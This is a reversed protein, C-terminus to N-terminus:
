KQPASRPVPTGASLNEGMGQQSQSSSMALLVNKKDFTFTVSNSKMDAGGILGGIYPVFSEPREQMASYNYAAVRTGDSNLTTTTPDGLKAIVDGYTSKGVVFSQADQESVKVGTSACASLLLAVLVAAVLNVRM